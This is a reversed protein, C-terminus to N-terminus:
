GIKKKMEGRGVKKLRHRQVKIRRWLIDLCRM